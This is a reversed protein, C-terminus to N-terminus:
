VTRLYRVHIPSCIANTGAENRDIVARDGIPDAKLYWRQNRVWAPIPRGDYYTADQALAVLTGKTFAPAPLKEQLLADVKNRFDDMTEGFRHMWHEPDGHNSGYGRQHAERHSVIDKATLGFKKCLHACYTAALDFARRYYSESKLDDECIEFQIFPPHFNYSGKKGSGVGWCCYNLPLIEAVRLNQNKDYGIFAHVCVKRGEPKPNNWHNGYPNKGLLDPCDVYRKLNPNNAGTSHVVIGAPTMKKAARYCLNKTAHAQIIDM